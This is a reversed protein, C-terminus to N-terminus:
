ARQYWLTSCTTPNFVEAARQRVQELSVADYIKEEEYALDPNGIMTAYAIGMARNLLELRSFLLGSIIQNKALDLEEQSIPNTHLEEYLLQDLAQEAQEPAVHDKLQGSVILLGNDLAGNAYSSISSFLQSKHVLQEQLRSSRNRGVVETVLDDAYYTSDTRTGTKFARFIANAPVDKEVIRRRATTQAPEQPIPAKAHKGAPISEFWKRALELAKAAPIAGAIVLIANEPVYFRAFFSRVDEMTAEEIHRIDKGITPWQYPHVEYAMSYLDHSVQGYPPNFIRQKFEEVVVKRQVELVKPDFNLSLMRDSELWLATEINAVPVSIFYNTFDQTTFANNSGGARQIAKDFDPVHASGGFMLHEFLHAFGTKDPTENRAGVEYLVNVAAIPYSHDEHIVVRLGNSLTFLDQKM